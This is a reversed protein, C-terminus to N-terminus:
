GNEVFRKSHIFPLGFLHLWLREFVYGNSYHQQTLMRMAPLCSEPISCVLDSHVAFMAGYAFQGLDSSWANEALDILGCKELFHGTINWGCQLGYFKSHDRMIRKGGVDSWKLMDMTWLSFQETRLQVDGIWEDIELDKLIAPPINCQDMYGSTLNQISKWMKRSNLLELLKPNHPFPDGQIFIQWKDNGFDGFNQIHHLYTDSERGVNPINVVRSARDLIKKNTIKTGKNYIVINVDDTVSCLWDLNEEYRAVVMTASEDSVLNSNKLVTHSISTKANLLMKRFIENPQIFDINPMAYKDLFGANGYYMIESMPNSWTVYEIDLLHWHSLMHNDWSLFTLVGKTAIRPFLAAQLFWEDFGYSPFVSNKIEVQAPTGLLCSARFYGNINCWVFAQLLLQMEMGGTSGFHSANIPRYFSPDNDHKASNLFYPTRWFCLGSKISTETREIDHLVYLARDSDIITVLKDKEELALFRWMAGPNHRLSSSKMQYIECGLSVFDAVLFQLDAALYIRLVIDPREKRVLIAGEILPQVYHEWFNYRVRSPLKYDNTLLDPTPLPFNDDEANASKWFLSVCVIHKSARPNHVKDVAFHHAIELKQADSSENLYLDLMEDTFVPFFQSWSMIEQDNYSYVNELCAKKQM